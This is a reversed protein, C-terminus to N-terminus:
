GVPLDFEWAPNPLIPFEVFVKIKWTVKHPGAVLTPPGSGAVALTGAYIAQQGELLELPGELTAAEKGLDATLWRAGKGSGKQAREGAVLTARVRRTGLNQRPTISVRVAIEEGRAVPSPGIEVVVKGIRRYALAFPATVLSLIGGAAAAIAWGAGPFDRALLLPLGGAALLALASLACGAEACGSDEKTLLTGAGPPPAAVTLPTEGWGDFALSLSARAEVLWQVSFNRGEYTPPGAPIRLAFPFTLRDGSRWPGEGLPVPVRDGLATNAEGTTKWHVTATLARCTCEEDVEVKVRGRVEEGPAYARGPEDLLVELRVRSM